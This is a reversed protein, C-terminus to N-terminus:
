ARKLFDALFMGVGALCEADLYKDARREFLVSCHAPFEHDADNYLLLLPVRPLAMFQIALDYSPEMEMPRGGLDKCAKELGHVSGSFSAAIQREVNNRFNEALPAADRFDKYSLWDDGKPPLDPCMLIYKCLVVSIGFDPREGSPDAIGKPSVKYPRQFFPIILAEGDMVAGIKKARSKIDIEAIQALYDNYTKEFITSERTM